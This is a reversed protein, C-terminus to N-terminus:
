FYYIISTAIIYSASQETGWKRGGPPTRLMIVSFFPSESKESFNERGERDLEKKIWIVTFYERHYEQQM